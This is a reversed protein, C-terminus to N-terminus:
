LGANFASTGAYTFICRSLSATGGDFRCLTSMVAGSFCAPESSGFFSSSLYKSKKSETLSRPANSHSADYTTM